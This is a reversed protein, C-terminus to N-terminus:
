EKLKLIDNWFLQSQLQTTHTSLVVREKTQVAEYIAPILYGISKGLGTPAEILAHNHEDFQQKIEESIRIQNKRFVYDQYVKSLLGEEKYVQTLFLDYNILKEKQKNFNLPKLYPLDLYYNYHNKNNDNINILKKYFHYLVSILSHSLTKLKINDLIIIKIYKVYYVMM